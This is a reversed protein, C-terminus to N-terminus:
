QGFRDAFRQKDDELTALLAAMDMPMFRLSDVSPYGAPPAVKRHAPLYGQGVALQQGEESLLFDVFAKAARQNRSTRLIAVPETVATLGERPIVFEVPSGKAKANLAMFDVLIGYGKEGSAVSRLVAGNGRVAVIGNAKLADMFAWGLDARAAFTSVTIAAAGSYLPSPMVLQGRFRPDALDKWSTPRERAGTNYVIGSTILKTGFYTRDKDYAEPPLNSVDAEPYALLRNERKLMELSVSDAVLLLDPRPDGAAIEAMLKNMIETTGSRFIEVRVGPNRKNFGAVTEAADKDPQSTYLVLTQATAAPVALGLAAAAAFLATRFAKLRMQM